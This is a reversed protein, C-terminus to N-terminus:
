DQVISITLRSNNYRQGLSFNSGGAEIYTDLNVNQSREVSRISVSEVSSTSTTTNASPTDDNNSIRFLGASRLADNLVADDHQIFPDLNERLTGAM